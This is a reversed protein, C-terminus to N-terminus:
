HLIIDKLLLLLPGLIEDDLLIKKYENRKEHSIMNHTTHLSANENVFQFKNKIINNNGIFSYKYITNLYEQQCDMCNSLYKLQSNNENNLLFKILNITTDNWKSSNNSSFDSLFIRKSYKNGAEKDRLSNVAMRLIDAGADIEDSILCRVAELKLSKTVDKNGNDDIVILRNLEKYFPAKSFLSRCLIFTMNIHNEIFTKNYHFYDFENIYHNILKSNFLCPDYRHYRVFREPPPPHQIHYLYASIIYDFPDRVFHVIKYPLKIFKNWEFQMEGGGQVSLASKLYPIDYINKPQYYTRRPGINDVYTTNLLSSLADLISRSLDHGTKHYHLFLWHYDDNNDSLTCKICLILVIFCIFTKSSYMM